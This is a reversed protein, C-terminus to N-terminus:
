IGNDRDDFNQLEMCRLYENTGLSLVKILDDDAEFYGADYWCKTLEYNSTLNHMAMVQYKYAQITSQNTFQQIFKNTMYNKRYRKSVDALFLTTNFVKIRAPAFRSLDLLINQIMNCFGQFMLTRETGLLKRCRRESQMKKQFDCDLNKFVAMKLDRFFLPEEDTSFTESDSANLRYLENYYSIDVGCERIDENLFEKGRYNVCVILDFERKIEQPDIAGVAPGLVAINKGKVMKHFEKDVETAFVTQPSFNGISERKSAANMLQWIGDHHRKWLKSSRSLAETAKELEGANLFGAYLRQVDFYRINRKREYKATLKDVCIQRIKYSLVYLGEAMAFTEADLLWMISLKEFNQNLAEKTKDIYCQYENHAIGTNIITKICETVEREKKNMFKFSRPVNSNRMEDPTYDALKAPTCGMIRAIFWYASIQTIAEELSMEGNLLVQM